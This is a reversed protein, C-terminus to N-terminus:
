HLHIRAKREARREKPRAKFAGCPSKKRAGEQKDRLQPQECVARGSERNPKGDGLAVARRERTARETM